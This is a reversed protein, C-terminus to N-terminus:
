NSNICTKPGILALLESLLSHFSPHILRRRLFSSPRPAKLSPCRNESCLADSITNRSLCNQIQRSKWWLTHKVWRSRKQSSCISWPLLHLFEANRWRCVITSSRYAVLTQNLIHYKISANMNETPMKAAESLAHMFEQRPTLGLEAFICSLFSWTKPIDPHHATSEKFLTRVLPIFGQSQSSTRSQTFLPWICEPTKRLEFSRKRYRLFNIVYPGLLNIKGSTHRKEHDRGM